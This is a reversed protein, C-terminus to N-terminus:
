FAPIAYDGEIIEGLKWGSVTNAICRDKEVRFVRVKAVLKGDRNVLLEGRELVGQAEGVNLVVFDWKPDSILVKGKLGEPLKVRYDPDVYYALSNSLKRNATMLLAIEAKQAEIQQQAEKYDTIMKKVANVPIGLAIWAALDAQADDREQTTQKLKASLDAARKRNSEAEALATDRAEETTRLTEKTVELEAKTGKLEKETKSLTTQTQVLTNSTTNLTDRTTTIVEKVQVFNVVAVALGAVVAVILCIRILM